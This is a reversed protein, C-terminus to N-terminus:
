SSSCLDTIPYENCVATPLLFHTLLCAFLFLRFDKGRGFPLSTLYERVNHPTTPKTKNQKPTKQCMIQETGGLVQAKERQGQVGCWCWLRSIEVQWGATLKVVLTVVNMGLTEPSAAEAGAVPLCVLPIAGKQRRWESGASRRWQRM